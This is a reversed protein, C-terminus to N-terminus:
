RTVEPSISAIGELWRYVQGSLTSEVDYSMEVKERSVKKQGPIAILTSSASSLIVEVKGRNTVQDLINFTFQAQIDLDSITKRIQGRFVHGTLDIPSPTSDNITLVIKYDAGQEIEMKYNAASM